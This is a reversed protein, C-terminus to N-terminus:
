LKISDDNLRNSLNKCSQSNPAREFQSNHGKSRAEESAKKKLADGYKRASVLDEVM